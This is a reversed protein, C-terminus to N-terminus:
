PASPGGTLASVLLPKLKEYSKGAIMWTLLAEVTFEARFAADPLDTHEAYPLLLEALEKRLYAHYQTSAASFAKIADPDQFLTRHASIYEQIAESIVLLAKEANETEALKQEAQGITRRWDEYMFAAALADKSRFYNYVTGVGVGCGGAVSRVTMSGFGNETVQRRTEEILKERLHDILKPM